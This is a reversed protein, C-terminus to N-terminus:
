EYEEITLEVDDGVQKVEKAKELKLMRENYKREERKIIAEKRRIQNIYGASVKHPM